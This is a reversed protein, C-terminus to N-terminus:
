CSFLFAARETSVSLKKLFTVKLSWLLHRQTHRHLLQLEVAKWVRSFINGLIKCTDQIVLWSQRALNKNKGLNVGLEELTGSLIQDIYFRALFCPLIKDLRFLNWWALIQGYHGSWFKALIVMLNQCIVLSAVVCSKAM